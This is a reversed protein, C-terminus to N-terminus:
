DNEKFVLYNYQVWHQLDSLKLREDRKIKRALVEMPAFEKAKAEEIKISKETQLYLEYATSLDMNRKFKYMPDSSEDVKRISMDTIAKESTYLDQLESDRRPKNFM